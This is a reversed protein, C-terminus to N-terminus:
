FGAVEEGNVWVSYGYETFDGLRIRAEFPELVHTCVTGAPVWSYIRVHIENEENPESVEWRLEHCPTPLKGRVNMAVQMPYSEMVLIETSDIAVNGPEEGIGDSPQSGAETDKLSCACLLITLAVLGSRRWISPMKMRGQLKHYHRIGPSSQEGFVKEEFFV